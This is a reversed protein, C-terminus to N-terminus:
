APALIKYYVVRGQKRCTFCIGEEGLVLENNQSPRSADIFTKSEPLGHGEGSKM